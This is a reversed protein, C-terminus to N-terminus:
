KGAIVTLVFTLAIFVISSITTIKSLKSDLSRAKDKGFFTDAAGAFVGSLGESDSSQFLISVITVLCAVFDAITLILTLTSM